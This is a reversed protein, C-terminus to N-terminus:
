DSIPRLCTNGEEGTVSYGDVDLIYRINHAIKTYCDVGDGLVRLPLLDFRRQEDRGKINMYQRRDGPHDDVRVCDTSPRRLVTPPTRALGGDGGAAWDETRM